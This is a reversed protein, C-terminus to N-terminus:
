IASAHPSTTPSGSSLSSEPHQAGCCEAGDREAGLPAQPMWNWHHPPLLKNSNEKSALSRWWSLVDRGVDGVRAVLLGLAILRIPDQRIRAM